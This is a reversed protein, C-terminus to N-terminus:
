IGQLEDLQERADPQEPDLQLSLELEHIALDREGHLAYITALNNHAALHTDDIELVRQYEEIANQLFIEEDVHDEFYEEVALDSMALLGYVVALNYHADVREDDLEVAQELTRIAEAFQQQEALEAGRTVLDEYSEEAM